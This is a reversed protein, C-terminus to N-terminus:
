LVPGGSAPHWREQANPRLVEQRSVRVREGLVRRLDSGNGACQLRRCEGIRNGRQLQATTRELADVVHKGEQGASMGVIGQHLNLPRHRGLDRPM